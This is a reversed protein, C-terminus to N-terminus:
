DPAKRKCYARRRPAPASAAASATEIYPTQSLLVHELDQAAQLVDLIRVFTELNCRGTLEVNRLTVPSLGIRQALAEVSLNLRIRCARVRAGLETCIADPRSRTFDLTTYRKSANNQVKWCFQLPYLGAGWSTSFGQFCASRESKTCRWSFCGLSQVPTWSKPHLESM